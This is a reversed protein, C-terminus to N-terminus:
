ATTRRSSPCCGDWWRMDCTYCHLLVIPSGDKKGTDTVQLEGGFADVLQAGEVTTKADKTENTVVLSNLILLVFIGVVVAILIKWRRRM